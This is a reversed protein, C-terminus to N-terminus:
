GQAIFPGPLCREVPDFVSERDSSLSMSVRALGPKLLVVGNDQPHLTNHEPPGFWM